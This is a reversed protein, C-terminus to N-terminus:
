IYVLTRSFVVCRVCEFFCILAVQFSRVYTKPKINGINTVIMNSEKKNICNRKTHGSRLGRIRCQRTYTRICALIHTDTRLHWLKSQHVVLRILTEWNPPLGLLENRCTYIDGQRLLHWCSLKATSKIEPRLWLTPLQNTQTITISMGDLKRKISFCFQGFLGDMYILSDRTAINTDQIILWSQSLGASKKLARLLSPKRGM